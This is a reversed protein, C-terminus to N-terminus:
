RAVKRLKLLFAVARALEASATILGRSVQSRRAEKWRIASEIVDKEAQKM